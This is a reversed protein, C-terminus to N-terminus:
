LYRKFFQNLEKPDLICDSLYFNENLSEANLYFYNQELDSAMTFYCNNNKDNKTQVFIKAISYQEMNTKYYDNRVLTEFILKDVIKDGNKNREQRRKMYLQFESKSTNVVAGSKTDKVLNEYNQIKLLSM